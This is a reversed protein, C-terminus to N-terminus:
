EREGEPQDDWTGGRVFAMILVTLVLWGVVGTVVWSV